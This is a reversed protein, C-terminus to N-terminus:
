TFFAVVADADPLRMAAKASAEPYGAGLGTLHTGSRGQDRTAPQASPQQRSRERRQGGHGDAMLVRTPANNAARREGLLVGESRIRM